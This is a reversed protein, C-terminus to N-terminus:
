KGYALKEFEMNLSIYIETTNYHKSTPFTRFAILNKDILEQLFVSVEVEFWKDFTKIYLRQIDNDFESLLNFLDTCIRFADKEEYISLLRDWFKSFLFPEIKPYCNECLYVGAYDICAKEFNIDCCRCRQQNAENKRTEEYNMIIIKLHKYNKRKHLFLEFKLHRLIIKIM